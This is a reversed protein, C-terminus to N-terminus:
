TGLNATLTFLSGDMFWIVRMAMSVDLDTNV